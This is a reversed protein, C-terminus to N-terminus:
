KETEAEKTEEVAGLDERNVVKLTERADPPDEEVIDPCPDVGAEEKM